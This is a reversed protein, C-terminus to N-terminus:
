GGTIIPQNQERIISFEMIVRNLQEESGGTELISAADFSDLQEIFSIQSDGMKGRFGSLAVNFGTELLRSIEFSKSIIDFQYLDTVLINQQNYKYDVDSSIRSYTCYPYVSDQEALGPYLRDSLYSKIHEHSILYNILDDDFTYVLPVHPM